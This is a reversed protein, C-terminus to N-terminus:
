TEEEPAIALPLPANQLTARLSVWGDASFDEIVADVHWQQGHEDAIIDGARSLPRWSAWPRLAPDADSYLYIRRVVTNQGAHESFNLAADGESQVNGRLHVGPAYLKVPLGRADVSAGPLSRYLTLVTDPKVAQIAGRVIAHLNM